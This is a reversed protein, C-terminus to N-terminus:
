RLDINHEQKGSTVTYTIGSTKPDKYKSPLPTTEATAGIDKKPTVGGPLQLDKSVRPILKQKTQSIPPPVYFSIQVPGPTVKDVTYSGGSQIDAAFVSGKEDYFMVRSGASLPKGQYTIKGSIAGKSGCGFAPLFCALLLGNQLFRGLRVNLITRM